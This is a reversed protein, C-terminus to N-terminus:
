IKQTISVPARSLPRREGSSSYTTQCDAKSVQKLQAMAAKLGRRAADLLAENRHAKEKLERTEEVTVDPRHTSLWDALKAKRKLLAELMQFDGSLLLEQEQRLIDELEKFVNM